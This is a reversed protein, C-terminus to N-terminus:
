KNEVTKNASNKINLSLQELTKIASGLTLMNDSGSVYVTNLASIIMTIKQFLESDNM